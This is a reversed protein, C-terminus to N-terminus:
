CGPVWTNCREPWEHGCVTCRRHYHDGPAGPCDRHFIVYARVRRACIARLNSFPPLDAQEVPASPM